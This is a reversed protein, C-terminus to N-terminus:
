AAAPGEGRVMISYESASRTPMSLMMAWLSRASSVMSPTTNPTAATTDISEMPSPARRSAIAWIWISPALLM